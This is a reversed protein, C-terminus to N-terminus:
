PHGYAYAYANGPPAFNAAQVYSTSGWPSASVQAYAASFGRSWASVNGTSWISHASADATARGFTAANATSFPGITQAYAAAAGGEGSWVNATTQASVIVPVVFLVVLLSLAIVFQLKRVSLVTQM